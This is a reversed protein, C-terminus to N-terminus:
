ATPNSNDLLHNMNLSTRVFTELYTDLFVERKGEHKKTFVYSGDRKKVSWGKELANMVFIMKKQHSKSISVQSPADVFIPIPQYNEKTTNM